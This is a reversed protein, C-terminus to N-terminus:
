ESADHFQRSPQDSLHVSERDENSQVYGLRAPCGEPAM